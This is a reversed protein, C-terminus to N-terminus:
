TINNKNLKRHLLTNIDICIHKYDSCFCNNIKQLTWCLFYICLVIHRRNLRFPWLSYKVLKQEVVIGTLLCFCTVIQGTGPAKQRTRMQKCQEAMKAATMCPKVKCVHDTPRSHATHRATTEKENTIHLNVLLEAIVSPGRTAKLWNFDQRISCLQVFIVNSWFSQGKMHYLFIVPLNKPNTVFCAHSM